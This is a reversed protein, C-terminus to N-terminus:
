HVSGNCLFLRTKVSTDGFISTNSSFCFLHVVGLVLWSWYVNKTFCVYFFNSINSLLCFLGDGNLFDRVCSIKERTFVWVNDSLFPLFCRTISRKYLFSTEIYKSPHVIKDVFVWLKWYKKNISEGASRVLPILLAIVHNQFLWWIVCSSDSTLFKHKM